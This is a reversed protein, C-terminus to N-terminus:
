PILLVKGTTQRGELAEHAASANSLPFEAGVRVTLQDDGILRFLEGTRWQYEQPTAIFDALTPRTLFLSGGQALIQPDIPEVAGSSQGFLAMTGRPRLAEVSSAFTDRGVGDFVAHVGLGGTLTRSLEVFEEYGCVADAGNDRALAQKHATSATAIVHGGRQKILQTLLLGVGGAAAHVVTWEGSRVPHVSTCLYHATLGQLMVSAATRIDIDDPVLALQDVDAIIVDAYSGSVSSWAVKDGVQVSTVGEGLATVVGAGESGPTFPLPLRYAGSRHYTDIYNVGIAAVQIAVQAAKPTPEPVDTPHLQQPGGTEEVLIMRM